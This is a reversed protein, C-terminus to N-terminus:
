GVVIALHQGLGNRKVFMVALENVPSGILDYIPGCTFLRPHNQVRDNLPVPQAQMNSVGDVGNGLRYRNIPQVGVTVVFQLQNPWPNADWAFLGCLRVTRRANSRRSALTPRSIAGWEEARTM